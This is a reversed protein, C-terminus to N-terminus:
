QDRMIFPHTNEYCLGGKTALRIHALAGTSWIEARLRCKLYNSKKANEPEKECSGPMDTMPLALGWGHPHADGHSFFDRLWENLLVPIYTSSGFIECM